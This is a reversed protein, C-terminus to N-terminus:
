KKEIRVIKFQEAKKIIIESIGKARNVASKLVHEEAKELSLTSKSFDLIIGGLNGRVQSYAKRIRKDITGYKESEITKLEWQTNNWLFDPTRVGEVNSEVLLVVDGGFMRSLWEAMAIEEVHKVSDYGSVCIVKGINPKSMDMYNQTIEKITIDMHDLTGDSNVKRLGTKDGDM